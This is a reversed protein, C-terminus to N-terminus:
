IKKPCAFLVMKGVRNVVHGTAEVEVVDEAVEEALQDVLAM